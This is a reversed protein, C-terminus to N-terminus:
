FTATLNFLVSRTSPNTFYDMGSANSIGYYSTEPDSGVIDTWLILDRGTLAIRLSKLPFNKYRNRDFTYGLTVNRLKTWTADEVYLDNLKNFGLGGGRTRYFSEDLLVNGAGFDTINGRVTTGASFVDGNVNVLDETLTVENGVDAHTGFGYMVIRGRNIFDGGQSHEFLFSFDFGKFNLQMGAGGRWDPNPDGIVRRETDVEPFGNEDLARTGDENLVSAPLWFSSMPFGKVAKSTGGIDVTEAGFIDVVLNDNNNFNANFSWNFDEKDIIKATLDVEWGKNEIIGANRYSNNFGSSPNTKVEFLIDDIENEYYTIGLNLRNKFFRLDAGIEYETKIEPRLNRNGQVDSVEFVGGFDTFGTTALTEFRYPAPQIGVKGWSARLKGFFQGDSEFLDSFQWAMDVSPYFFAGEITSSAELSASANVFLQDFLGFNVLAYGRNTRIQRLNRSWSTSADDPNLDSIPQRSDVVFPTLRISSTARKRNNFNFGLTTNVNIDPTLNHKTKMLLDFNYEKSVAVTSRMDGFRAGGSTNIPLFQLREDSYYDLGGRLTFDLWNLARINIEPTMLFRDVRTENRQEYLTWLPNNYGANNSAGLQNRYSRQRNQFVDGDEDVYTGIHGRIDFDAPNRLLGIYLGTISGGGRIRNSKTFTYAVNNRVDLWDTLNVKTNLRINQRNYDANKVIGDQELIGYSFFYSAKQGGGAVSFDHQLFSGNRFVADFNEDIFTQRSNKNAIPYYLEGSPTVFYEGSTDFDDEGGPRDAIRDGWSETRNLARVGGRGQGFKDQLPVRVSIDDISYTSSYTFTPRRNFSGGKTTILIVGNAARSGWLAAASAGKLIQVNEIDNQNIDNLRSQQTVSTSGGVGDDDFSDNSVPIGDIIILPNSDGEISNIGRIQINAGAGPDGNQRAIRLGSVKGSLANIVGTEGSKVIREPEVSSSTAGTEDKLQKTGIATLIVEDLQNASPAMELNIIADQGVTVETTRFGIYSFVLIDGSSARTKYKGDFNTSVGKTTGKIIINVGALPVGEKDTVTGTVTMSQQEKLLVRQQDDKEKKLRLVIYNKRVVYAINTESFIKELIASIPKKEVNITIKRNIDVKRHNYTFKFDSLSEIKDLVKQLSVNDQRLSIKKNQSYTNAHIEFLSIVLLLTTIKMKLDFKYANKLKFFTGIISKKM